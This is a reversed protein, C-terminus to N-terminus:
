RLRRNAYMAYGAFALHVSAFMPVWFMLMKVRITFNDRHRVGTFIAGPMGLILVYAFLGGISARFDVTDMLHDIVPDITNHGLKNEALSPENLLLITSLRLDTNRDKATRREKM